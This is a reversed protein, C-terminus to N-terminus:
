LGSADPGCGLRNSKTRARTSFSRGPCVTADLGVEVEITGGGEVKDTFEAAAVGPALSLVAAAVIGVNEVVEGMWGDVDASVALLERWFLSVTSSCSM